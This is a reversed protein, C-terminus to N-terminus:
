HCQCLVNWIYQRNLVLYIKVISIPATCTALDDIVSVIAQCDRIMDDLITYVQNLAEGYSAPLDGLDIEVIHGKIEDICRFFDKLAQGCEAAEGNSSM